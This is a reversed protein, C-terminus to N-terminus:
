SVFGQGRRLPLKKGSVSFALGTHEKFTSWLKPEQAEVPLHPLLGLVRVDLWLVVQQM